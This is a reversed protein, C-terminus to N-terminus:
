RLPPAEARDLQERLDDCRDCRTVASASFATLRETAEARDDDTATAASLTERARLLERMEAVTFGLPKM